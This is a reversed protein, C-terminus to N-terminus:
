CFAHKRPTAPWEWHCRLCHFGVLTASGPIPRNNRGITGDALELPEVVAHRCHPCQDNERLLQARRVASDSAASARRKAQERFALIVPQEEDYLRFHRPAADQADFLRLRSM